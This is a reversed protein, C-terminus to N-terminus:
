IPLILRHHCFDSWHNGPLCPSPAPAQLPVCPFKRLLHFHELDQSLLYNCSTYIQLFDDFQM